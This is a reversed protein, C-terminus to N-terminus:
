SVDHRELLREMLPQVLEKGRLQARWRAPIAQVGDRIGALGGAVCATTDTDNGLAIAAKVVQEYGGAQLALRASHLCDVVYGGGHGHPADDPRIHVELENREPSDSGYIARLTAVAQAWPDASEQLTRRAWLCYLACCVQSRIHGHTPLSQRQADAVLATDSGRHWLALSLVRMLAGNGNASEGAPGASNAPTGHQLARLAAATQVGVDFVQGDVAMFGQDFWAVLRRGVDDLDLRGRDLLSALLALAQAGDDSWTGPLVGAHARRFGAPPTMEIQELPPLEHPTHFEYPVGLADGVLLGVLGGEIREQLSIDHTM